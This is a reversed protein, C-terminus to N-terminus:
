TTSTPKHQVVVIEESAPTLFQVTGPTFAEQTDGCLKVESMVLWQIDDSTSIGNFTWRLLIANNNRIFPTRPRITIKRVAFDDKSLQDNNLLDFEIPDATNVGENNDPDLLNACPM